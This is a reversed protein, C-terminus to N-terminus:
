PKRAPSYREDPSLAALLTSLPVSKSEQRLEVDRFFVLPDTPEPSDLRIVLWANGGPLSGAGLEPGDSVHVPGFELWNVEFTPLAGRFRADPWQTDYLFSRIPEPIERGVHLKPRLPSVWRYVGGLRAIEKQVQPSPKGANHSTAMVRASAPSGFAWGKQATASSPAQQAAAPPPPKVLTALVALAASANVMTGVFLWVAMGESEARGATVSQLQLLVWGTSAALLGSPILVELFASWRLRQGVNSRIAGFLVVLPVFWFGIFGGVLGELLGRLDIDFIGTDGWSKGLARGVWALAYGAGEGLASAILLWAWLSGISGLRRHAFLLASAYVVLALVSPLFSVTPM